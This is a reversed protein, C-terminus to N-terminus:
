AVIDRATVLIRGPMIAMSKSYFRNTRSAPSKVANCSFKGEIDMEWFFDM